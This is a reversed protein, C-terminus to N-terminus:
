MALVNFIKTALHFLAVRPLQDSYEVDFARLAFGVPVFIAAFTLLGDRSLTSGKDLAVALAVWVAMIIGADMAAKRLCTMPKRRCDTCQRM